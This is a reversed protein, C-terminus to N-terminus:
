CYPSKVRRVERMQRYIAARKSKNESFRPGDDYGKLPGPDPSSRDCKEIDDYVCQLLRRAQSEVHLPDYGYKEALKGWGEERYRRRLQEENLM